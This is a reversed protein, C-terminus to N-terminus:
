ISVRRKLQEASALKIFAMLSHRSIMRTTTTFCVLALILTPQISLFYESSELMSSCGATMKSATISNGKLCGVGTWSTKFCVLKVAWLLIPDMTGWAKILLTRKSGCGDRCGQNFCIGRFLKSHRNSAELVAEWDASNSLM